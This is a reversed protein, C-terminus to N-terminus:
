LIKVTSTLGLSEAQYNQGTSFKSLYINTIFHFKTSQCSYTNGYLHIFQSSHWMQDRKTFQADHSKTPAVGMRSTQSQTGYYGTRTNRWWRQSEVGNSKGSEPM